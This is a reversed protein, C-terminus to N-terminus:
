SIRPTFDNLADHLHKGRDLLQQDVKCPHSKNDAAVVVKSGIDFLYTNDMGSTQSNALDQSIWVFRVGTFNVLLQEVSPLMEM